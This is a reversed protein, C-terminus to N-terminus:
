RHKFNRWHKWAVPWPFKDKKPEEPEPAHQWDTNRFVGLFGNLNLNTINSPDTQGAGGQHQGLCNLFNTGNYDEDAFAIHGTPTTVNGAFVIIDGRKIENKNYVSIFPPVSNAARSITWCDEATGSGGPRTYLTLGYQWYLLAPLDWCQNGAYNDVNYGNGLTADRFEQYTAHAVVVYGNYQAM